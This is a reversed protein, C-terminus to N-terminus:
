EKIDNDCTYGELVIAKLLILYNMIDTIKEEWVEIPYQKGLSIMDYVSVVHKCMMGGLAQEPTCCQIAGAAKFNSLKDEDSAYEKGKSTLLERCRELQNTVISEFIDAKM